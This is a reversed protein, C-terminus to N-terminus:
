YRVSFDTTKHIGGAPPATELDIYEGRNQRDLASAGHKSGSGDSRSGYAYKKSTSGASTHLGKGFFRDYVPKIPPVSGCVIIVFLEAGSWAFLNYTEWTLDSRANLGALYNVKVIGCVAALLGLSLLGGLGLKQRAPMNLGWLISVPLIALVIDILINWSSLFIAYDSQVKPDWCTAQGTAVLQPNWLAYSPSCQVFTLICGLANIIFVSVISLYLMWKRWVSNPGMIRLILLAVSIKGTAFGFIGWPQTAWNYEVALMQEPPTLYFLHRCGGISAYYTVFSALCLFLVLTLLMVYDDYSTGRIMMRGWLRMAVVIIAVASEVWYLAVLQPGRDQNGGPPPQVDMAALNSLEDSSLL